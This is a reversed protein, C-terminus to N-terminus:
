RTLKGGDIVLETGLVFPARDSSLFLIAEAVEHADCARNILNDIKDLTSLGGVGAPRRVLERRMMPTDTVGPCVTNVRLGQMAYDCAAVRGLEILGGKSSCYAAMTAAGVMGAASAVNVVSGGGGALIWPIAYKMLLFAGRLNVSIVRDFAAESMAHLPADEGEVGASNVLCNLRPFTERAQRMLTQVSASSGVDVPIFVAPVRSALEAALAQGPEPTIDALLLSAGERAFIEATARGIGSAAGVILAVKGSL